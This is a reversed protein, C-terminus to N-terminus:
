DLAARYRRGFPVLVTLALVYLFVLCYVIAFFWMPLNWYIVRDVWQMMLPQVPQSGGTLNNQWVTLICARGAVAQVAVIALMALHLLRLWAIRVFRWGLWAGLPIVVLGTVNFAIIILHLGLITEAIKM